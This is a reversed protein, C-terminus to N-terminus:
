SIIPKWNKAALAATSKKEKAYCTSKHVLSSLCMQRGDTAIVAYRMTSKPPFKDGM